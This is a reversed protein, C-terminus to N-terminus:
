FPEFFPAFSGSQPFLVRIVQSRYIKSYCLKKKLKMKKVSIALPCSYDKQISKNTGLTLSLDICHNRVYSILVCCERIGRRELFLDKQQWSSM